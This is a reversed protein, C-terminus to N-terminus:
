KNINETFKDTLLLLHLVTQDFLVGMTYRGLVLLCHTKNKYLLSPSWVVCLCVGSSTYVPIVTDYFQIYLRCPEVLVLAPIKHRIYVIERITALPCIIISYEYAVVVM